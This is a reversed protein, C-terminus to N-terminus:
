FKLSSSFSPTVKLMQLIADFTKHGLKTWRGRNNCCASTLACERERRKLMSSLWIIRKYFSCVTKNWQNVERIKQRRFILLVFHLKTFTNKNTTKESVRCNKLFIWSVLYVFLQCCMEQFNTPVNKVCFPFYCIGTFHNSGRIRARSYMKLLDIHGESINFHDKVYSISSVQKRKCKCQFIRVCM